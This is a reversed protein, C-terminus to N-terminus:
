SINAIKRKFTSFPVTFLLQWFGSEMVIVVTESVLGKGVSLLGPTFIGTLLCTIGSQCRFSVALIGTKSISVAVRYRVSLTSYFDLCYLRVALMWVPFENKPYDRLEV